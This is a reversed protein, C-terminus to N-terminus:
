RKDDISIEVPLGAPLLGDTTFRVLLIMAPHNNASKSVQRDIAIVKGQFEQDLYRIQAPRNLLTNRYQEVPLLAKVSMSRNDAITLLTRNEVRTNIYQGPFADISLVIGDIPSRIQAQARHFRALELEATSAALRAEAIRFAQQSRQLTVLALSDRDYMEQAKDLEIQAFELEPLLAETEATAVDVRAQLGTSVMSVLLDGATVSQGIGVHVHDIRASISSNLTLRQDFETIGSLEFAQAPPSLLYLLTILVPLFLRM